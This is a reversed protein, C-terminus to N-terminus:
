KYQQYKRYFGPFIEERLGAGRAPNQQRAKTMIATAQMVM